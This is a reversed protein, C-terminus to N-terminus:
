WSYEKCKYRFIVDQRSTWFNIYRGHRLTSKYTAWTRWTQGKNESLKLRCNRSVWASGIWVLESTEGPNLTDSKGYGHQMLYVNLARNSKTSNKAYGMIAQSSIPAAQAPALAVMPSLVVASALSALAGTVIKNM